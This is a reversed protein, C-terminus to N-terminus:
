KNYTFYLIIYYLILNINVETKLFTYKPYYKIKDLLYFSYRDYYELFLKM